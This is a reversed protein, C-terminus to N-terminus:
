LLQFVFKMSRCISHSLSPAQLRDTLLTRFGFARMGEILVRCNEAYRGGRGAQGGEAWFEQLAQHFAVLVHIPMFRYQGTKALNQWQDHLDLVLTTANGQSEALALERCIVFGLGPM